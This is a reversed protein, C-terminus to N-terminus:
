NAARARLTEPYALSRGDALDFAFGHWPCRVIRDKLGIEYEQPRSPLMASGQTGLCLPARHHPCMNAIGYLTGAVNYVGISRRGIEVIVHSGPELDKANAVIHRLPARQDTSTM